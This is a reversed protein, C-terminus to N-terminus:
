QLHSSPPTAALRLRYTPGASDGFIREHVHHIAAVLVGSVAADEGLEAGVIPTDLPPDIADRVADETLRVVLEHEIAPGYLVVLSPDVALIMTAIQEGALTAFRRVHALAQPDGGEASAVTALFEPMSPWWAHADRDDSSRLQNLEGALSHVGRHLDGGIVVGASVQYWLLALVMDDIDAGAGYRHEAIAASNVDNQLVIPVDFTGEFVHRINLGLWGPFVPSRQMTGDPSLTGPVAAGLALIPGLASYKREVGSIHERLATMRDEVALRHDAPFSYRAHVLGLADAVLVREAHKGLEVGIVLGFARNLEYRSAPRGSSQGQKVVRQGPVIVGVQLLDELRDKVTPRSLGTASALDAVTSPGAERLHVFCRAMNEVRLADLWVEHTASPEHM